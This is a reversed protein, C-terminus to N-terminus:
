RRRRRKPPNQRESKSGKRWVMYGAGAVAIAGVVLAAKEGTSLGEDSVPVAPLPPTASCTAITASQLDAVRVTMTQGALVNITGQWAAAECNVGDILFPDRSYQTIGVLTPGVPVTIGSAANASSVERGAVVLRAFNPLDAFKLIGTSGTTVQSLSSLQVSNAQGAVVDIEGTMGTDSLIRYRGAALEVPQDGIDVSVGTSILTAKTKSGSPAGVIVLTTRGSVTVPPMDSDAIILEQSGSAAQIVQSFPRRGVARASVTLSGIPVQRPGWPVPFYAPAQGAVTVSVEAGPVMTNVLLTAPVTAQTVWFSPVSVLTTSGATVAVTSRWPAMGPVTAVVEASGVPLGTVIWASSDPGERVVPRGAVTVTTGYPYPEPIVVRVSGTAPAATPNLVVALETRGGSDITITQHVTQYGPAEIHLTHPGISLGGIEAGYVQTTITALGGGLQRIPIVRDDVKLITGIPNPTITVKFIGDGAAGTSGTIGTFGIVGGVLRTTTGGWTDGTAVTPWRPSISTGLTVTFPESRALITTAGAANILPLAVLAATYEGPELYVQTEDPLFVRVMAGNKYVVFAGDGRDALITLIGVGARQPLDSAGAPKTLRVAPAGTRGARMGLTTFSRNMMNGRPADKVRFVESGASEAHGSVFTGAFIGPGKEPSVSRVTRVTQDHELPESMGGRFPALPVLPTAPDIPEGEGPLLVVPGETRSFWSANPWSQYTGAADFGPTRSWKAFTM